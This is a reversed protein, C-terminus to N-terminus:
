RSAYRRARRRYESPLMDYKKRFETTFKSPSVYGVARSIDAISDDSDRLLTAAHEMRHERMHAAISNGYVVKFLEKFTSPNMHVRHSLEEITIRRSLDATLLDHAQRVIEIQEHPYLATDTGSFGDPSLPQPAIDAIDSEEPCAIAMTKEIMIHLLQAQENDAARYCVERGRRHSVILGADRLQRLHHSVAPSSMQMLASIDLVCEECHCLLWFIRIRSSDALQRFVDAVAQFHETRDLCASLQDIKDGSEHHHPLSFNSM